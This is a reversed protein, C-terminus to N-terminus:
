LVEPDGQVPYDSDIESGHKPGVQRCKLSFLVTQARVEELELFRVVSTTNMGGDDRMILAVM